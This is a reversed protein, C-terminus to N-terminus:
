EPAPPTAAPHTPTPPPATGTPATDPDAPPSPNCPDSARRREWEDILDAASQILERRERKAQARDEGHPQPRMPRALRYQGSDKDVSLGNLTRWEILTLAECERPLVRWERCFAAIALAWDTPEVREPVQGALYNLWRHATHDPHEGYAAGVAHHWGLPDRYVAVGALGDSLERDIGAKRGIVRWFWEAAYAEGGTALQALDTHIPPPWGIARAAVCAWLMAPDSVDPPVEFCNWSNDRVWAQLDALDGLTIPHVTIPVGLLPVSSPRPLIELIM